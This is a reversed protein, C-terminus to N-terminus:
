TKEPKARGAEREGGLLPQGWPKARQADPARSTGRQTRRQGGGAQTIRAAHQCPCTVKGRGCRGEKEGRLVSCLIGERGDEPLQLPRVVGFALRM